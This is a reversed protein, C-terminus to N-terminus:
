PQLVEGAGTALAPSPGLFFPVDSGLEAALAALRARPLRRKWLALLGKLTAAADSSGGGLGAGHPV